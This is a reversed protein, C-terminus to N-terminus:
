LDFYNLASGNMLFAEYLRSYIDDQLNRDTYALCARLITRAHTRFYHEVFFEFDKPPKHMVNLMTEGNSRFTEENSDLSLIIKKPKDPNSNLINEQISLLVKLINAKSLNTSWKKRTSTNLLDLCVKGDSELDPHLEYGYSHYTVIPPDNPYSPPFSIDFFFLGDQLPTGKGGLIVARLLHNNNREYARVFITDPLGEMLIRWEEKIRKTLLDEEHLKWGANYEDGHVLLDDNVIVGFQKFRKKHKFYGYEDRNLRKQLGQDEKGAAFSEM